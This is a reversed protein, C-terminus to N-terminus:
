TFDVLFLVERIIFIFLFTLNLKFKDLTLEHKFKYIIYVLSIIYGIMISSNWLLVTWHFNINVENYVVKISM